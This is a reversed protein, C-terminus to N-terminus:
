IMEHEHTLACNNCECIYLMYLFPLNTIYFKLMVIIFFNILIITEERRKM